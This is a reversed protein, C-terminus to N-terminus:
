DLDFPIDDLDKTTEQEPEFAPKPEEKSVSGLVIGTKAHAVPTAKERLYAFPDDLSELRSLEADTLKSAKTKAASGGKEKKKVRIDYGETPHAPNGEEQVCELIAETITKNAQFLYFEGDKRNIVVMTMAPSASANSAATFLRKNEPSDWDTNRKKQNIYEVIKEGLCDPSESCTITKISSPVTIGDVFVKGLFHIHQKLFTPNNTTKVIRLDLTDGAKMNLFKLFKKGGGTKKKPERISQLYDKVSDSDDEFEYAM